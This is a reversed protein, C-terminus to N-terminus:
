FPSSWRMAASGGSLGCASSSPPFRRTLCRPTTGASSSRVSRCSTPSIGKGNPRITARACGRVKAADLVMEIRGRVRSATEAKTTWIPKLIALLEETGVEAVPKDRISVCYGSDVWTGNDDKQVSLTMRWQDLHKPNRWSTAHADIFASAVDGFTLVEVKKRGELPDRGERLAARMAEAKRRAEALSVESAPGLGAERQKKDLSYLFVWRKRIGTPDIALYLGGGDAHRGPKKLAQVERASLRNLVRAM